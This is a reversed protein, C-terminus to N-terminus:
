CSLPNKPPTNATFRRTADPATITWVSKMQKGGNEAKM